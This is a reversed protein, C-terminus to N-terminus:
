RREHRNAAAYRRRPGDVFSEARVPRDSSLMPCIPACRRSETSGGELETVSHGLILSEPDNGAAGVTFNARPVVIM